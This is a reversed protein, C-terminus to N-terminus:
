FATADHSLSEDAQNDIVNYEASIAQARKDAQDLQQAQRLADNIDVMEIRQVDRWDSPRRNKLWFVQATVDPAMAKTTKHTTEWTKSGDTSTSRKIEEYEYGMARKCLALEIKADMVERAAILADRLDQHKHKLQYYQKIQLGLIAAIEGDHLGHEAIEALQSPLKATFLRRSKAM